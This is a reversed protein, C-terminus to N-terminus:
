RLAPLDPIRVPVLGRHATRGHGPPHVLSIDARDPNHPTNVIVMRTETIAAAIRDLDLDNTM